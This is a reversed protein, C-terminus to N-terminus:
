DAFATPMTRNDAAGWAKDTLAILGIPIEKDYLAVGKQCAKEPKMGGALWGYVERCLLLRTIEEGIGTAAVAGAPGAWFGAGPIPSDGIRGLMMPSSGGTSNAVAFNGESDVACAGVTDCGWRFKAPFNWLAEIDQGQWRNPLKNGLRKMKKEFRLRAKPHVGGHRTLCLKRAFRDAGQGALLIHPTDMVARALLIPNQPFTVVAVGGIRGDSCMLAADMEVTKGDMRPISGSGANFRGDDEFLVTAAMVADLASGGKKLIKMGARTARRCGGSWSLPAGVGGHVVISPRM